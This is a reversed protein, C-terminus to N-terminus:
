PRKASKKVGAKPKETFRKRYKYFPSLPDNMKQKIKDVKIHIHRAMEEARATQKTEIYHKLLRECNELTM